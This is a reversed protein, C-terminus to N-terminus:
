IYVMMVGGAEDVARVALLLLPHTCRCFALIGRTMSMTAIIPALTSISPPSKSPHNPIYYGAQPPNSAEEYVFRRTVLYM